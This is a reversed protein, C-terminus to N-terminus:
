DHGVESEEIEALFGLVTQNFEDPYEMNVVHGAGPIVVKRADPIGQHLIDAIRHFDAADREGIVVLTPVTIEGLREIAPPDEARTQWWIGELLHCASYDFLMERIRTAVGPKEMAVIRYPITSYVASSVNRPSCSYRPAFTTAIPITMNEFKKAFM